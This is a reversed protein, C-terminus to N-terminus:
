NGQPEFKYLGAIIEAAEFIAQSVTSAHINKLRRSVVDRGAGVAIFDFSGAANREIHIAVLELPNVLKSPSPNILM